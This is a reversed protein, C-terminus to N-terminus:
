HRVQEAEGPEMKPIAASCAPRQYQRCGHQLLHLLGRRLQMGAVEAIGNTQAPEQAVHVAHAGDPV